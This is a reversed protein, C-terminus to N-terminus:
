GFAYTLETQYTQTSYALTMKTIQTDTYVINVSAGNTTLDWGTVDRLSTIDASFTGGSTKVNKLASPSFSVNKANLMQVSVNADAGDKEIIVGNKVKMNGTYTIRFGEPAVIRDDETIEFTGLKEYSYEVSYTDGSETVVYRGVFPYGNETTKSTLVVPYRIDSLLANLKTCIDADSQSQNNKESSNSGFLNCSALTTMVTAVLAFIIIFRLIKKM